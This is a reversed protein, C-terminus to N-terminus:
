SLIIHRIGARSAAAVIDARNGVYLVENKQVALRRLATELGRPDPKFRQVEPDQATVVVDFFGDIGM